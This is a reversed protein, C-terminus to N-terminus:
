QATYLTRGQKVVQHCAARNGGYVLHTHCDVLGPTVWRHGGSHKPLGDGLGVPLEERSGVWAIRGDHVVMAADKIAGYSGAIQRSLTALHMDTWLADDSM